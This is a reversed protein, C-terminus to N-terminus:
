LGNTRSAYDRILAKIDDAGLGDRVNDFLPIDSSEVVRLMREEKLRLREDIVGDITNKSALRYYRTVTDRSLGYRHIRDRSQLYQAADFGREMYLAVHCAHHLSISEAVAAPNAIVVKTSSSPDNFDAIIQERTRESSDVEEETGGLPIEGYLVEAHIGCSLLYQRFSQLTPVFHIWVVVKNGSEMEKKILRETTKYKEPVESQTFQRIDDMIDEPLNLDSNPNDNSAILSSPNSAAQMLRTIKAFASKQVTDDDLSAGILPEIYFQEVRNYIRQQLPSMAVNMLPYDVVPPLHLDEKRIRLYYPEIYHLLRPIRDDREDKSMDSLQNIQFRTVNRGPWIFGFLNYLDQYGNPAPTGTLVVRSSASEAIAMAATAWVGGDTNKIKHAEDLVVMSHNDKLFVPLYKKLSDLSGYSILTLDAPKKSLLYNVKDLPPIAGDLRVVNPSKGFCAKYEQEWPYFCSLPGVVVLSGVYKASSSELSNLYSYAGYVITTKGSGPVSFNCANQSFALHYASLLQLPYLTRGPLDSALVTEFHKFEVSDCDNNRVRRAKESFESFNREEEYYNQIADQADENGADQYGRKRLALHLDSLVDCIKRDRVKIVPNNASIGPAIRNLSM